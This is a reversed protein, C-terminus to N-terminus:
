RLGSTMGNKNSNFRTAAIFRRSRTMSIRSQTPENDGWNVQHGRVSARTPWAMVGTWRAYRTHPEVAEARNNRGLSQGVCNSNSSFGLLSPPFNRAPPPSGVKEIVPQSVSSVTSMESESDDTLSSSRISKNDEHKQVASGSEHFVNGMAQATERTWHTAATWAKAIQADYPTQWDLIEKKQHCIFGLVFIYGVNAVVTTTVPHGVMVPVFVHRWFHQVVVATLMLQVLEPQCPRLICILMQACLLGLVVVFNLLLGGSLFLENTSQCVRLAEHGLYVSMLVVILLEGVIAASTYFVIHLISLSDFIQVLRYWIVFMPLLPILMTLDEIVKSIISKKALVPVVSEVEEVLHNDMEYAKEISETVPSLVDVSKSLVGVATEPMYEKGRTELWHSLGASSLKVNLDKYVQALSEYTRTIQALQEALKDKDATVEQIKEDPESATHEFNKLRKLNELKLRIENERQTTTNAISKNLNLLIIEETQMKHELNAVEELRKRLRNRLWKVLKNTQTKLKDEEEDIKSSKTVNQKGEWDAVQKETGDRLEFKRVPENQVSTGSDVGKESYYQADSPSNRQASQEDESVSQVLAEPVNGPEPVEDSVLDRNGKLRPIAQENQDVITHKDTEAKASYDEHVKQIPHLHLPPSERLYQQGRWQPNIFRSRAVPRLQVADPDNEDDTEQHLAAVDPYTLKEQTKSPGNYFGSNMQVINARQPSATTTKCLESSLIIVTIMAIQTLVRM